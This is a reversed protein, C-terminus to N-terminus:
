GNSRGAFIRLLARIAIIVAVPWIVLLDVRIDAEPSRWMVLWEWAAFALFFGAPYLAARSRVARSGSGRRLVLWTLIFPVALAALRLPQHVFWALVDGM